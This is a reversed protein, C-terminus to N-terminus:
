DSEQLAASLAQEEDLALFTDLDHILLLGDDLKVVGRVYEMHPVISEGDVVSETSIELVDLVTEVVLAVTRTATRAVIIQDSLFLERTSLGFRQRIDLVPVVRGQVNIIGLVVAPLGPLPTIEVARLVRVVCQLPLAVRREDLLFVVLMLAATM